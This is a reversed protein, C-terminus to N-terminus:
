EETVISDIAFKIMTLSTFDVCIFLINPMIPTKLAFVTEAFRCVEPIFALFLLDTDAVAQESLADLRGFVKEPLFVGAVASVTM